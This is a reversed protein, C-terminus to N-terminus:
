GLEVSTLTKMQQISWPELSLTTDGSLCLGGDSECRSWDDIAFADFDTDSARGFEAVSNFFCTWNYWLATSLAIETIFKNWSNEVLIDTATGSAIGDWFLIWTWDDAVTLDDNVLSFVPFDIGFFSIGETIGSRGTSEPSSWCDFDALTISLCVVVAAKSAPNFM